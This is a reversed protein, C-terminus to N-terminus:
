LFSINSSIFKHKPLQKTPTSTPTCFNFRLSPILSQLSIHLVTFFLDAPAIPDQNFNVLINPSICYVRCLIRFPPVTDYRCVRIEIFSRGTVFSSRGTGRAELVKRINRVIRKANAKEIWHREWGGVTLTPWPVRRLWRLHRCISAAM